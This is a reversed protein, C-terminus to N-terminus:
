VVMLEVRLSSRPGPIPRVAEAAPSAPGLLQALVQRRERWAALVVRSDAPSAKAVTTQPAGHSAVNLVFIGLWVTAMGAWVRRWPLISEHWFNQAVSYLNIRDGRGLFRVRVEGWGEGRGRLSRLPLLPQAEPREVPAVSRTAAALDEPRIAALKAEAHRHKELILDRPTKM